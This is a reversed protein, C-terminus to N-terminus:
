RESRTIRRRIDNVTEGRARRGRLGAASVRIRAEPPVRLWLRLGPLGLLLALLGLGAPAAWGELLGPLMARGTERDHLVPVPTGAAHAVLGSGLIRREAGGVRYAIIPRLRVFPGLPERLIGAAQGEIRQGGLALGAPRIATWAAAGLSLAALVLLAAGVRGRRAAGAV